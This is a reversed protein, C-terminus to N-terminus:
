PQIYDPGGLDLDVSVFRARTALAEVSSVPMVVLIILREPVPYALTAGLNRLFADDEANPEDITHVRASIRPDPEDGLSAADIVGDVDRYAAAPLGTRLTVARALDLRYQIAGGVARLASLDSSSAPRDLQVLMTQVDGAPETACGLVLTAALASLLRIGM